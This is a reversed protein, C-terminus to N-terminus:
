NQRQENAKEEQKSDRDADPTCTILASVIILVGAKSLRKTKERVPSYIGDRVEIKGKSFIYNPMIEKESGVSQLVGGM